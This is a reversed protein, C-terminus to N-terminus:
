PMRRRAHSVQARLVDLATTIARTAQRVDEAAASDLSDCLAVAELLPPLAHRLLTLVLEQKLARYYADERESM